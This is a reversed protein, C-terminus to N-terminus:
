QWIPEDKWADPFGMEKCDVLNCTDLLAKLDAVFSSDPSIIRTIYNMCCLQAYLKNDYINTNQIFTNYTNYPIKPVITFRRNWLRSHHACINRLGAFAHMWSELILPNPLGFEKAVKKKEDGKKLNGYLKSLLGMTIVELSMWAPPYAPTSYTQKYHEIFTESSRDVEEYLSNINKNFFYNNRYMNADEHWHSGKTLSFEYVIKTRLAIEIKEIANFVLLRLRRDFVYLEIIDDFSIEKIFSHNPDSNDQFPYTYARLRYYSINSLYHAAKQENGFKLGRQKLKAIQATISLPPKSYKM